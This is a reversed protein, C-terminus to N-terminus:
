SHTSPRLWASRGPCAPRVQDLVASQRGHRGRLRQHSDPRRLRQGCRRGRHRSGDEAVLKVSVLADPNIRRLDYILQALDEISYIDHHPPPSILAIGPSTHRIRAIEASVKNGPIQGGEGPKAGQAIKIQLERASM